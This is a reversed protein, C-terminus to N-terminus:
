MQSQIFGLQITTIHEYDCSILESLHYRDLSVYKEKIYDIQTNKHDFVNFKILVSQDLVIPHRLGHNCKPFNGMLM